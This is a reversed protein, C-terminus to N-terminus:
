DGNRASPAPTRTTPLPGPRPNYKTQAFVPEIMPLRKRCLESGHDSAELERPTVDLMPELHGFDAGVTEIEAALVVQHENTVAQANLAALLRAPGQRRYPYLNSYPYESLSM